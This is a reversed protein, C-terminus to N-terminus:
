DGAQRPMALFKRLHNWNLDGLSQQWVSRYREFYQELLMRVRRPRPESQEPKTLVPFFRLTVLGGPTMSVLLPVVAAGTVDAVEAFGTRVVRQRGFLDMGMGGTGCLGDAAFQVIGGGALERKAHQLQALFMQQYSLDPDTITSERRDDLSMLDLKMRNDGVTELRLGRRALVLASLQAVTTHTNLLIIGRGMHRAAEINRWGEVQVWRALEAESCAALAALRWFRGTNATLSHRIVPPPDQTSGIADLTRRVLRVQKRYFLRQVLSQRCWWNIVAAGRRYPIVKGTLKILETRLLFLPWLLRQRLNFVRM